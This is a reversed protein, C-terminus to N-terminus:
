QLRDLARHGQALQDIGRQLRVQSATGNGGALRQLFHLEGFRQAHRARGHAFGHHPQGALALEVCLPATEHHGLEAQLLLLTPTHEAVRRRASLHM